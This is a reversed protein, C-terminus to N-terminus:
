LRSSYYCYEYYGYIIKPCGLSISKPVKCHLTYFPKAFLLKTVVNCFFLLLIVLVIISIVYHEFLYTKLLGSKSAVNLTLKHMRHM